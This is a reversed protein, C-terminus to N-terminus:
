PNLDITIQTTGRHEFAAKEFAPPGFSGRANNSFGYDERPIGIFNRDHEGNGNADHFVAVAYTGDPIDSLRTAVEKHDVNLTVGRFAGSQQPFDDAPRFIGVFLRGEVRAIDKVTIAITGATSPALPGALLLFATMLGAIKNLM